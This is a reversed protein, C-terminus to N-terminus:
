TLAAGLSANGELCLGAFSSSFSSYSMACEISSGTHEQGRISEGSKRYEYIRRSVIKKFDSVPEAPRGSQPSASSWNVKSCIKSISSSSSSRSNLLLMTYPNKSCASTVNSLISAERYTSVLKRDGAYKSNTEIRGIKDGRLSRMGSM